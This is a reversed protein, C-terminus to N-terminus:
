ESEAETVSLQEDTKDLVTRAIIPVMYINGDGNAAYYNTAVPTLDGFTITQSETDSYVTCVCSAKSIGTADMDDTEVIRHSVMGCIRGVLSDFVEQDVQMMGNQENVWKGSIKAFSRTVGDITWEIRKCAKKDMDCVIYDVLEETATAADAEEQERKANEKLVIAVAASLLVLVGVLITMRVRRKKKKM